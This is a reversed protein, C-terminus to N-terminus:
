RELIAAKLHPAIQCAAITVGGSGRGIDLLNTFREFGRSSALPRGAALAGSHLGRFFAGLEADTMATFDHKARPSGARISRASRLAATWLDSVFGRRSGAPPEPGPQNPESGLWFGM